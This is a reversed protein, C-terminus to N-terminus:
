TQGRRQFALWDNWRGGSGHTAERGRSTGGHFNRTFTDGPELTIDAACLTHERLFSLCHESHHLEHGTPIDDADLAMRLRRICYQQHTLSIVFFRHTPGMHVNAGDNPTSQSEEISMLVHPKANLLAMNRPVDPEIWTYNSLPPPRQELAKRCEDVFSYDLLINVVGLLALFCLALLRSM